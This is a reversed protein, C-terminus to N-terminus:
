HGVMREVLDHTMQLRVNAWQRRHAFSRSRLVFSAIPWGLLLVVHLVSGAGVGLVIASTVLEIAAALRLFGGSLAWFAVAASGGRREARLVADTASARVADLISPPIIRLPVM